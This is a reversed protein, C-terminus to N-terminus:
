VAYEDVPSAYLEDCVAAHLDLAGLVSLCLGALM